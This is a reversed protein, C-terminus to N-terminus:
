APSARRQKRKQPRLTEPQRLKLRRVHEALLPTRWNPTNIPARVGAARMYATTCAGAWLWPWFLPLPLWPPAGPTACM